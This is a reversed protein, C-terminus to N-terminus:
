DTRRRRMGLGGLASAFLWVAAPVPVPAPVARPIITVNDDLGKGQEIVRFDDSIKLGQQKKGRQREQELLGETERQDLPGLDPPSQNEAVYYVTQTPPTPPLAPPPPVITTPVSTPVGENYHINDVSFDWYQGADSTLTIVNGTPNFGIQTTGSAM